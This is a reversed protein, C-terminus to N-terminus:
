NLFLSKSQNLKSFYNLKILYLPLIENFKIFIFYLFHIVM